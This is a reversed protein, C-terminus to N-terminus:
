WLSTRRQELVCLVNGLWYSMEDELVQISDEEWSEPPQMGCAAWMVKGKYNATKNTYNTTKHM